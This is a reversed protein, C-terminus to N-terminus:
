RRRPNMAAEAEERRRREEQRRTWDDRWDADLRDVLRRFQAYAGAGAM